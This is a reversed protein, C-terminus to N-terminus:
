QFNIMETVEKETSYFFSQYSLACYIKTDMKETAQPVNVAKVWDPFEQCSSSHDNDMKTYSNVTGLLHAENAKNIGQGMLHAIKKNMTVESKCEVM